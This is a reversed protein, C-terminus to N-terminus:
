PIFNLTEPLPLGVPTEFIPGAGDPDITMAGNTAFFVAIQTQAAVSYPAVAAVGINTLFTHPNKPTAPNAAYALDNRFITARDALDGARLIATTTPNPVTQDGKAFQFIVPKAAAGPLPHKRIFAAYSVPNGSQQVWEYRDLVKAIEMAGPVSNVVVAQNRLPVNENFAIGSPDAVNILSPTRTALAIGTLPRFVGLRAVETISGGAVNPVGAQIDPEVGLLMTGYIGGFSQGAYYIRSADLDAVGDGDVDVGVQVERVLQMIDVVTQRLGDRNGAVTRPAAASVGETSEITGNGDQDFGRGGANVVVPTDAARLVTLEGLAGGGHGVVNISLTAIGRSAFVSAVTWPAGYMSDTFGHGFIAVPWGGAPKAGSPLFLQFRLENSGQPVPQGSRTGTAPIIKGATEYDPSTFKGYAIQGVAGPVVQLAPTPLFATTFTPATGVQRKFQIGSIGAVPFVARVTGSAGQGVMFDVPAPTSQKISRMIKHLDASISQTTFLSAAVIKHASAPHIRSADRIDRLYEDNGRRGLRRDDEDDDWRAPKIRKGAADRVGDTVVLLYRSHQQLLEDSEFALTKTAPDWVIQNIGVKHGFGQLSLTDGLNVLFVTGSNVTAPDIDATFPVTIRPQTSFGDLTNIVDIDQCDSVRVTCDPKPLAVRRFTNHSWDRVTYRDSPFVSGAPDSFDLKVSVGDALSSLPIFLLAIASALAGARHARM